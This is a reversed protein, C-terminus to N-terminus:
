LILFLYGMNGMHGDNNLKLGAVAVGFAVGRGGWRWGLVFVGPM